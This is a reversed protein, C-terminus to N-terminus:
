RKKYFLSDFINSFNGNGILISEIPTKFIILLSSLLISTLLQLMFISSFYSKQYDEDIYFKMLATDMGYRYFTMAFGIFIYIISIIGYEKPTLSHTLLPLLLFTGLRALIHGFGYVLSQKGLSAISM